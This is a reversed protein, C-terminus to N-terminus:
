SKPKKRLVETCDPKHVELGLFDLLRRIEAAQEYVRASLNDVRTNSMISEFKSRTDPDDVSFIVGLKALSKRLKRDKM